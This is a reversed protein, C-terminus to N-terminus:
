VAVDQYIWRMGHAEDSHLPAPRTTWIQGSFGLKRLKAAIVTDHLYATIVIGDYEALAAAEPKRCPVMAQQNYLAWGAYSENDDFVAQFRVDSGVANLFSQGQATAGYLATKGTLSRLTRCAAAIRGEFRGGLDVAVHTSFTVNRPEVAEFLVGFDHGDKIDLVRLPKLGCQEALEQFHAQSFYQVHQLHTDAFAAHNEIYAADPVELYARGGLPLVARVARIFGLPDAVHEIVQRCIVMDVQAPCDAHPFIGSLLTINDEPLLKKTLYSSPEIVTVTKVMTALIRALHGSGSGIELISRGQFSELEIWSLLDHLRAIMSPDVPVNTIAVDGYMRGALETGFSRNFLHGCRGCRVLDFESFYSADLHREQPTAMFIPALAKLVPVAEPAQCVPCHDIM